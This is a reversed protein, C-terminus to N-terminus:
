PRPLRGAHNPMREALAAWVRPLLADLWAHIERVDEETAEVPDYFSAKRKRRIREADVDASELGAHGLASVAYFLNHHHGPGAGKPRYGAGELLASAAQLGAQYALSVANDASMGLFRSDRSSALAKEWLVMVKEPDPSVAEMSRAEILREIRMPITM